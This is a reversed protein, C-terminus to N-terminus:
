KTPPRRPLRVTFTTGTTATSSVDVTGAHALMLQRVIYLGLGISRGANDALETGREMPEFIRPLLDQSIPDGTNHVELAVTDEGGRTQVRVPTGPPSYQLANALLNSIVQSLRDPDWEGAGDGSQHVEISREPRTAQAEDVAAHVLEHLNAAKRQIAIGGGHQARTFDLLDHIMRTAREASLRIRNIGRMQREDTM